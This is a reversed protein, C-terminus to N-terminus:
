AAGPPYVQWCCQPQFTTSPVSRTLLAVDSNVQLEVSTSTPKVNAVTGSFLTIAGLVTSWNSLWARQLTIFAGDLQGDLAAKQAPLGNILFAGSALLLTM